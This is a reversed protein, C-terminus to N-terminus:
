SQRLQMGALYGSAQVTVTQGATVALAFLVYNRDEVWDAESTPTTGRTDPSGGLVTVQFSSTDPVTGNNAYLYLLYNGAPLGRIVFTNVLASMGSYGGIYTSLMPDFFLESGSDSTLPAVKELRVPLEVGRYDKLYIAPDSSFQQGQQGNFDCAPVYTITFDVAAYVNWYDDAAVGDAAKGTKQGNGNFDVNILLTACPNGVFYRIGAQLFSLVRGVLSRNTVDPAAEVYRGKGIVQGGDFPTLHPNLRLPDTPNGRWVVQWFIWTDLPTGVIEGREVYQGRSVVTDSLGHLRSFLDNGHDIVVEFSSARQLTSPKPYRWEAARRAVRWVTGAMPAVVQENTPAQFTTGLNQGAGSGSFPYVVLADRAFPQRARRALGRANGLVDDVDAM